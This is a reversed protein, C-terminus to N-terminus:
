SYEETVDNIFDEMLNDLTKNMRPIIERTNLAVIHNNLLCYKLIERFRDRTEIAERDFKIKGLGNADLIERINMKKENQNYMNILYDIGTRFNSAYLLMGQFSSGFKALAMGETVNSHKETRILDYVEYIKYENIPVGYWYNLREINLRQTDFRNTYKPVMFILDEKTGGHCAELALCLLRAEMSSTTFDIYDNRFLMNQYFAELPVFSFNLSHKGMTKSYIM